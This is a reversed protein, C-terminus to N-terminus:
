VIGYQAEKLKGEYLKEYIPGQPTLTSKILAISNVRFTAPEFEPIDGTITTHSGHKGHSRKVRGITLHPSFMREDRDIGVTELCHELEQFIDLLNDAGGDSGIWIVRPNKNSPFCGTHELMLDFSRFDSFVPNMCEILSDVDEENIEGLFKLTLHLNEPSVWKVNQFSDRMSDAYRGIKNKIEAPIEVAIFTRM